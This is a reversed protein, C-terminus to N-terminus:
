QDRREWGGSIKHKWGSAKSGPLPRKVVKASVHAARVSRSKAITKMDGATKLKHCPSCLVQCNKLTAKGGQAAPIRHDYEPGDGPFIRRGCGECKGDERDWAALKVSRTFEDRKM